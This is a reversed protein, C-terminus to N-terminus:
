SRKCGRHFCDTEFEISTFGLDAAVTLAYIGAKAEDPPLPFEVRKSAAAMVLGASNRIVCGFGSINVNIAADSHIKGWLLLNGARSV